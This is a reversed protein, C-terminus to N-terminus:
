VSTIISDVVNIAIEHVVINKILNCDRVCCKHLRYMPHPLTDEQIRFPCTMCLYFLFTCKDDHKVITIQVVIRFRIYCKFFLFFSRPQLDTFNFLYQHTNNFISKAYNQTTTYWVNWSFFYLYSFIAILSMNYDHSKFRSIPLKNLGITKLCFDLQFLFM